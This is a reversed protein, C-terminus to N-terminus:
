TTVEQLSKFEIRVGSRHLMFNRDTRGGVAAIVGNIEIIPVAARKNRPIKNNILYNKVKVSGDMGSPYFKDGEKRSRIVIIDKDGCELYVAGDKKYESAESVSVCMGIEEIISSEGCKLHVCFPKQSEEAGEIILYGYEVRAVVGGPLDIKTGSQKKATEIVSQIYASSIDSLSGYEDRLMQRVIRRALPLPENLLEKTAIKGDSVLKSYRKKAENDIYEADDCALSANLSATNIFNPNFEREIVPILIHRIKNRTYEDNKNTSDTVYNLKHERCYEEIQTRSAELLPRIITGRKKPIGGLGAATSGRMINMLVTEANDNKNHATAIRTVNYEKCLDDFFEYRMKRGAAEEGIKLARAVSPIDCKKVFCKIGLGDCFDLVFREDRDAEDGRIGHNMHAAYVTIGLDDALTVLAHTLCVSDAGGSLGVLVVDGREILDYETVARRIINLIM